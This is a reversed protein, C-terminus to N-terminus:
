FANGTYAGVRCTVGKSKLADCTRAAADPTDFPGALLTFPAQRGDATLRYRPALDGLEPNRGSLDGWKTRLGELSESNGIEIARPGSRPPTVVATKMPSAPPSALAATAPAADPVSGTAIPASASNLVKMTNAFAAPEAPTTPPAPQVLRQQPPDGAPLAQVAAAVPQTAAPAPAQGRIPLRQVTPRGESRVERIPGLRDEAAALRQVIATTHAAQEHMSSKAAALDHQLDNVWKRLTALEDAIDGATRGAMIQDQQPEAIPLIAGLLDPRTAAVGIYGLGFAAFAVWSMLYANSAQRIPAVSGARSVVQM